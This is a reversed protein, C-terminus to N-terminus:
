PQFCGLGQHLKLASDMRLQLLCVPLQVSPVGNSGACCLTCLTHTYVSHMSDFMNSVEDDFGSQQLEAATQAAAAQARSSAVAAEEADQEAEETTVAKRDEALRALTKDYKAALSHMHQDIDALKVSAAELAGEKQQLQRRNWCFM